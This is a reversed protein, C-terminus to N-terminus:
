RMGGALRDLNIVGSTTNVPFLCAAGLDVVSDRTLVLAHRLPPAGDCVDLMNMGILLLTATSSRRCPAIMWDALSAQIASASPMEPLSDVKASSIVLRARSSPRDLDVNPLEVPSGSGLCSMVARSSALSARWIM